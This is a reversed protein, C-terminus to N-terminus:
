KMFRLIQNAMQSAKDFQEQTIKGSNLMQMVKAKPDGSFTQQFKQFQQLMNMMNGFNNMANRREEDLNSVLFLAGM